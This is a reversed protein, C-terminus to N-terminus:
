VHVPKIEAGCECKKPYIKKVHESGNKFRGVLRKIPMAPKGCYVNSCMIEYRM